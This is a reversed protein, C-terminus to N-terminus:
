KLFPLYEFWHIVVHSELFLGLMKQQSQGYLIFEFTDILEENQWVDLFLSTLFFEFLGGSGDSNRISDILPEQKDERINRRSQDTRILKYEEEEYVILKTTKFEERAKEQM